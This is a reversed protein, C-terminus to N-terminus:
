ETRSEKYLKEKLRINKFIAYLLTVEKNVQKFHLSFPLDLKVKQLRENLEISNLQCFTEVVKVKEDKVLKSKILSLSLFGDFDIAQSQFIGVAKEKIEKYPTVDVICNIEERPLLTNIEYLRIVIKHSLDENMLKLTDNLLNVTAIHDPHCDVFVPAFIVEPKLEEILQKLRQQTEQNSQLHGDKEDFFHISNINLLNQVQVAENKRIDVLTKATKDSKSGSGDTLFVVHTEAGFDAYKKLTGGAGITEDDVHPALFLVKKETLNQVDKTGSYYNSLILKNIPIIVPKIINLIKKKM